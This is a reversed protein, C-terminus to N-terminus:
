TAIFIFWPIYILNVFEYTKVYYNDRCIFATLSNSCFKFISSSLASPQLSFAVLAKKTKTYFYTSVRIIKYTYSTNCKISQLKHFHELYRYYLALKLQYHHHLKKLYYISPSFLRFTDLPFPWEVYKLFLRYSQYINHSKFYCLYISTM